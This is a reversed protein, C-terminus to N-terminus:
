RLPLHQKIHFPLFWQQLTSHALFQSRVFEHVKLHIKLWLQSHLLLVLRL